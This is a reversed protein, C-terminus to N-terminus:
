WCQGDIYGDFLDCVADHTLTEENNDLAKSDIVKLFPEGNELGRIQATVTYRNKRHNQKTEICYKCNLSFGGYVSVKEVGNYEFKTIEASM